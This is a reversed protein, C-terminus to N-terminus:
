GNELAGRNVVDNQDRVTLHHELEEALEVKGKQKGLIECGHHFGQSAPDLHIAPWHLVLLYASLVNVLRIKHSRREHLM